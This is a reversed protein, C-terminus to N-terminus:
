WARSAARARRWPTDSSPGLQRPKTLKMSLTGSQVPPKRAGLLGPEMATTVCLPALPLKMELRACCCSIPRDCMTDVPFSASRSQASKM